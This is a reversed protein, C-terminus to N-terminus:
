EELSPKLQPWFYKPFIHHRKSNMEDPHWVVWVFVQVILYVIPLLLAHTRNLWVHNFSFISGMYIYIYIYIIKRNYSKFVSFYFHCKWQCDFPVSFLYTYLFYFIFFIFYYLFIYLNYFIWLCTLLISGPFNWKWSIKEWLISVYFALIVIVSIYCQNEHKM